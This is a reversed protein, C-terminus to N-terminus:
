KRRTAAPLVLVVITAGALNGTLAAFLAHLAKVAAQSPNCAGSPKTPATPAAPAGAPARIPLPDSPEGGRAWGDRRAVNQFAVRTLAIGWAVAVENALWQFGVNPSGDWRRRVLGWQEVTLRSTRM